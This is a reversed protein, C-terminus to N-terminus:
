KAVAGEGGGSDSLFCRHGSLQGAKVGDWVELGCNQVLAIGRTNAERLPILVRNISWVSHIWKLVDTLLDSEMDIVDDIVWFALRAGKIEACRNLYICGLCRSCDPSLVTYAFAEGRIFEGQHRRLDVRNSELTFDEPPWNSWELEETLRVRCSMLAAFDLETHKEDLPELVFRPTKLPEPLSGLPIWQSKKNLTQTMPSNQM